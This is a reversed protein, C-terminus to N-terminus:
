HPNVPDLCLYATDFYPAGHFFDELIPQPWFIFLRMAKTINQLVGKEELTAM